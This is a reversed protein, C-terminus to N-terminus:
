APNEALPLRATADLGAVSGDAHRRDDLSLSGGISAVIARCIALGLGSGAAAEDGPAFPQFLRARQAPAIGPGGDAVTLVARRQGDPQRETRLTVALSAGPPSHRLANHLLNRVLERLAWEHARVTAPAAALEFDLSREAVLPALDLAVERVLPAWDLVPADDQRQLQEARALALMGDALETAREVTAGIERLALAPEVDGRLASQTQTKLVALPTRLQHAADRIFRQRHALLAALRGMLQDIADLLPRLERPAAGSDVASLDSESRRRLREGAERIPRTAWDVAIVVILGILLLLVAQRWLTSVLIRGALARRLELTEAVQITAMGHRGAAAVPQLLVAMRVPDGRYEADHFEVLAAYAGQAPISGHWDPLDDYGAVTAGDFGSVRFVMRSRNDAEFAELASYPIPAVLTAVGDRVAIDLREGISKASALLTRDYATDAAQLAQRYLAAAGVATVAIVPLLIAALLRARLSPATISM